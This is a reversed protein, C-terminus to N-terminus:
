SRPAIEIHLINHKYHPDQKLEDESILQMVYKQAEKPDHNRIFHRQNYNNDDDNEDDQWVPEYSDHNGNEDVLTIESIDNFNTLRTEVPEDFNTTLKAQELMDLDIAISIVSAVITTDKTFEQSYDSYNIHTVPQAHYVNLGTVMKSPIDCGELNEFEIHLTKLESM